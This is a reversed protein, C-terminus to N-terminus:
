FRVEEEEGRIIEGPQFFKNLKFTDKKATMSGDKNLKIELLMGQMTPESWSQDFIFNGLSYAIFGGECHTEALCHSNKYIETDQIVHPHHGIVIKAGADVARHALYEQRANHKPKYEDGFHFSVILYDVQKSANQIIEDFYPNHALLLGAEDIEAKMDNPGVDSFGLFGIKIGYKEIITPQEAEFSDIGGGTYLIEGDTLQTLNDVYADRGWDGVHNNAVSVIDIGADKLSEVVIPEMRFSYLNHRDKGKDSVPGELNAFTIDSDKLIEVSEFLKKYDGDLNKIVSKKVGRDLMIDGVFTLTLFDPDKIEPIEETATNVYAVQPATKSEIHEFFPLISSTLFVGIIVPCIIWFVLGIRLKIKEPM